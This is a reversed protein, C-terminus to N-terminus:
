GEGNREESLHVVCVDVYFKEVRDYNLRVEAEARLEDLTMESLQKDTM